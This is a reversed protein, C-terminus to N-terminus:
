SSSSGDKKEMYEILEKAAYMVHNILKEEDFTEAERRHIALEVELELLRRKLTKM